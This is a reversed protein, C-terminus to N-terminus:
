VPPEPLPMWHTIWYSGNPKKDLFDGDCFGDGIGRDPNSLCHPEFILVHQGAEPLRDEVSIWKSM